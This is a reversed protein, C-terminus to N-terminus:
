LGFGPTKGDCKSDISVQRSKFWKVHGDAFAYNAGGQHRTAGLRQTAIQPKLKQSYMANLRSLDAEDPSGLAIIGLRADTLVVTLSDFHLQYDPNGQVRKTGQTKDYTAESLNINYAYSFTYQIRTNEPLIDTDVIPCRLVTSGKKSIY